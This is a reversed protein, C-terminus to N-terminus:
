QAELAALVAVATAGCSLVWSAVRLWRSGSRWTPKPLTEPRRDGLVRGISYVAVAVFWLLLTVAAVRSRGSTGLVAFSAGLASLWLVFALIGPVSRKLMDPYTARSTTTVCHLGFVILLLLGALREPFDFTVVFEGLVIYAWFTAGFITLAPALVKPKRQPPLDGVPAVPPPPADNTSPPVGLPPAAPAPFVPPPAAPTPFVPPLLPAPQLDRAAEVYAPDVAAQASLAPARESTGPAPQLPNASEAISPVVPPAVDPESPAQFINALEPPVAAPSRPPTSTSPPTSAAPPKSLVPAQSPTAPKSTTASKDAPEANFVVPPKSTRSPPRSSYVAAAASSVVPPRSTRPKSDTNPPASLTTAKEPRDSAPKTTGTGGSPPSKSGSGKPSDSNSM